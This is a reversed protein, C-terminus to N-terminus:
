SVVHCVHCMVAHFMVCSVKVCTCSAMVHGQCMVSSWSMVHVHSSRPCIFMHCIVYSVYSMVGPCSMVCSGLRSHSVWRAVYRMFMHSVHVVHYLRVMIFSAYRMVCSAHCIVWSVHFFFSTVSVHGINYSMHCMVWSLPVYSVHGSIVCSRPTQYSRYSMFTVELVMFSAQGAIVHFINCLIAVIVRHGCSLPVHAVHHQSVHCLSFKHGGVYEACSPIFWSV